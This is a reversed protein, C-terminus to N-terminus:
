TDANGSCGIVTAALLISRISTANRTCRSIDKVSHAGALKAAFEPFLHTESRTRVLVKSCVFLPEELVFQLVGFMFRTARRKTDATRTETMSPEPTTTNSFEAMSM